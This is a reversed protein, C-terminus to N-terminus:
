EPEAIETWGLANIQEVTYGTHFLPHRRTMETVFEAFTSGTSAVYVTTLSSPFDDSLHINLVVSWLFYSKM